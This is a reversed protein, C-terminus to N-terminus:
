RPFVNTRPHATSVQKTSRNKLKRVAIGISALGFLLVGHIPEPIASWEANYSGYSGSVTFMTEIARDGQATTLLGYGLGDPYIQGLSSPYQNVPRSYMLNRSDLNAGLMEAQPIPDYTARLGLNRGVEYAIVDLMGAGSNYNFAANAISVGNKAFVVGFAKETVFSFGFTSSSSDITAVFWLDVVSPTPNRGHQGLPKLTEDALTYFDNSGGTSSINLFTTSKYTNVPLFEFDIGVQAWIKDCAQEFKDLQTQSMGPNAPNNGADDTVQILQVTVRNTRVADFYVQARAEIAGLLALLVLTPVLRCTLCPFRKWYGPASKNM